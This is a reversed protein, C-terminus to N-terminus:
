FHKKKYESIRQRMEVQLKKVEPSGPELDKTAAKLKEIEKAIFADLARRKAAEDAPTGFDKQEKETRKTKQKDTLMGKTSGYRESM